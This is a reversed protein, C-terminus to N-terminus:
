PKVGKMRNRRARIILSIGSVALILAALAGILLSGTSAGTVALASGGTLATAETGYM